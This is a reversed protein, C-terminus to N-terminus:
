RRAVRETLVTAARAAAGDTRLRQWCVPDLALAKDILAQWETPAPWESTVVAAGASALATATASQEGFPREQPVIVAPRAACAIDAIANQGAHTVVVSASCLTPWIDDVWSAADVGAPRWEYDPNAAAARDVADRTLATGGAGGLVLVTRGMSSATESTSRERGEFRSIAGVHFTKHAYPHLWEPDYTERSWPAIVATAADYALRHVSDDRAGPMAIVVVPTGTLRVFLAVEVSVDVVVLRPRTRALWEAIVAMRQTLGAVNTPAWHLLGNVTPDVPPSSDVDMPLSVWDDVAFDSVPDRSSLVTTSEGVARLARAISAARTVHGSGHHHAYYGIM